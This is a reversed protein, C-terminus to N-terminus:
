DTLLEEVEAMKCSVKVANQYLCSSAVVSLAQLTLLTLYYNNIMICLAVIYSINYLLVLVPRM